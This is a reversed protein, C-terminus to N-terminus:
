FNIVSELADDTDIHMFNAQYNITSTISSHRYLKQLMKIPIKDESINGFSHRAIHSTITTKIKAMEAVRALYKNLMTTGANIKRFVDKSAKLNVMKMEPFIFDNDDQKDISYQELIPFAKEPIKLSLLKSNKDMRYNLRNDSIASWKIKLVDAVRIGAFNFSFLWINRAHIENDTLSNVSQWGHTLVLILRETKQHLMDVPQPSYINKRTLPHSHVSQALCQFGICFYHFRMDALM